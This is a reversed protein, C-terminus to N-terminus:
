QYILTTFAKYNMIKLSDQDSLENLVQQIGPTQSKFVLFFLESRLQTFHLKLRNAANEIGLGADAQRSAIMSAVALHTHEEHYYGKLDDSNIHHQKLLSDLLLRTGAGSQRNVFVLQQDILQQLSDIPNDPHSILGQQRKELLFFQDNKSDLYQSYENFQQHNNKGVAIHFGAIECKGEAYASLAQKSGDIHLDIPLHQQRLKELKESDSAIIRTLQTNFLIQSLAKNTKNAANILLNSFLSRNENEMDLFAKGLESLQTGKGRQKEVLPTDLLSEFQKLINWAKRYSYGCQDAAARLNGQLQIHKLLDLVTELDYQQGNHTLNTRLTYNISVSTM